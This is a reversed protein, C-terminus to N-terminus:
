FFGVIFFVLALFFILHVIKKSPFYALFIFSVALVSDMLLESIPSKFFIDCILLSFFVSVTVIKWFWPYDFARLVEEKRKNFYSTSSM